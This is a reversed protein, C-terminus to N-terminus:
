DYVEEGEKVIAHNAETPIAEEPLADFLGPQRVPGEIFCVPPGVLVLDRGAHRVTMGHYFGNPDRRASEADATKDRYTTPEGAFHDVSILKYAEATHTGDVSHKSVAICLGGQWRFPKRVPKSLGIRDASYSASIDGEGIQRNQRHSWAGPQLRAPDVSIIQSPSIM